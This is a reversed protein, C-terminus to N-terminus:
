VDGSVGVSGQKARYRQTRVLSACSPTCYMQRKNPIFLRHCGERRCRSLNGELSALTDCIKHAMADKSRKTVELKGPQQGKPLLRYLHAFGGAQAELPVWFSYHTILKHGWARGRNLQRVGNRIRTLWHIAYNERKYGPESYGPRGPDDPFFAEMEALIVQVEESPLTSLDAVTDYRYALDILWRAHDEPTSGVRKEALSDYTDRM